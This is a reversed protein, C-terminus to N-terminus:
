WVLLKGFARFDHGKQDESQYTSVRSKVVKPCADVFTRSSTALSACWTEVFSIASLKACYLAQLSGNQLTWADSWYANFNEPANNPFAITSQRNTSRISKPLFYEKVCSQMPCFYPLSCSVCLNVALKVCCAISWISVFFTAILIWIKGNSAKSDWSLVIHYTYASLAAHEREDSGANISFRFLHPEIPCMTFAWFHLSIVFVCRSIVFVCRFSHVTAPCQPQFWLHCVHKQNPEQRLHLM